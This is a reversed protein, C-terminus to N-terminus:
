NREYVHIITNGYRNKIDFYLRIVGEETLNKLTENINLHSYFYFKEEDFLFKTGKSKNLVEEGVNCNYFDDCLAKLKKGRSAFYFIDYGSIIAFKEERPSIGRKLHLIYIDGTENQFTESAHYFHTLEPTYNNKLIASVIFFSNVIIFLFLLSIGLIKKREILFEFFKGLIIAIVPLMILLHVITMISPLFTLFFLCLFLMFILFYGKPKRLYILYLMSIIILPFNLFSFRPEMDFFMSEIGDKNYPHESSLIMLHELRVAFNNAIMLNKHGLETQILPKIYLEHIRSSSDMSGMMGISSFLFPSLGIFFLVIAIGLYESNFKKHFEKKFLFNVLFLSFFLALLFHVFIRNLAISIGALLFFSALYKKESKIYFGYFLYLLLTSFLPNFPLESYRNLVYFPLFALIVSSILALRKNFFEKAFLYNILIATVLFISQAFRIAFLTPGLFVFFPILFVPSSQHTVAFQFEEGKMMKIFFDAFNISESSLIYEFNYFNISFAVILILLIFIRNDIKM